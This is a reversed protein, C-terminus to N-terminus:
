NNNVDITREQQGGDGVRVAQGYRVRVRVRAASKHATSKTVGQRTTGEVERSIRKEGRARNIGCLTESKDQVHEISIIDMDKTNGSPPATRVQCM